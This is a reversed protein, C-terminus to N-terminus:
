SHFYFTSHFWKMLGWWWWSHTDLKMETEKRNSLLPMIFFSRLMKHIYVLHIQRHFSIFSFNKKIAMSVPFEPALALFIFPSEDNKREVPHLVVFIFLSDIFFNMPTVVHCDDDTFFDNSKLNLIENESSFPSLFLKLRFHLEILCNRSLLFPIIIFHSPTEM